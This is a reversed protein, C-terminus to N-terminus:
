KPEEPVNSKPGPVTFDVVPKGTQHLLCVKVTIGKKINVALQIMSGYPKRRTGRQKAIPVDTHNDVYYIKPGFIRM